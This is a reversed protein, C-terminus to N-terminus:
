TSPRPSLLEDVLPVLAAFDVRGAVEIVAIRSFLASYALVERVSDERRRRDLHLVGLDKRVLPLCALAESRDLRRITLGAGTPRWTLM